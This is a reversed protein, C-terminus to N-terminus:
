TDIYCIWVIKKQLFNQFDYYQICIHKSRPSFNKSKAVTICSQNDKFIKWFVEPKPVHIDLIFSVEKMLAMFNIVECM